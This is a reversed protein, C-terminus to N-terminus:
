EPQHGRAIVAANIRNPYHCRGYEPQGDIVIGLLEDHQVTEKWPLAIYLPLGYTRLRDLQSYVQKQYVYREAWPWDHPAFGTGPDIVLHDRIGLSEAKAVMEDFFGLLVAVPDHDTVQEMRLPDPGSLFPLVVPCEYEAALAMMSDNQLGDAANLWGVGADLARRATEPRWTDVSIPVGFTLLVPIIPELRAWEEEVTTESAAFTSGQGGLDFGWVGNSLLWEARRAADAPTRVISEEHLSDPSANLVGFLKM